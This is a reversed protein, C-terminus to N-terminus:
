QPLINDMDREAYASNIYVERLGNEANKSGYSLAKEFSVKAEDLEGVKLSAWGENNLVFSKIKTDNTESLKEWASSARIAQSNYLAERFYNNEILAHTLSNAATVALRPNETLTLEAVSSYIANKVYLNGSEKAKKYGEAPTIKLEKFVDKMLAVTFVKEPRKEESLPWLPYRDTAVYADRLAAYDKEDAIAAKQARIEAWYVENEIQKWFLKSKLMLSHSLDDDIAQISHNSGLLFNGAIVYPVTEDGPTRGISPPTELHQPDFTYSADTDFANSAYYSVDIDTPIEFNALECLFNYAEKLFGPLLTSYYDDPLNKRGGKPWEMAEWLPASFIDEHSSTGGDSTTRIFPPPLSSKASERADQPFCESNYIPLLQYASPFSFGYDNIAKSLWERDLQDLWSGFISKAEGTRALYFGNSFVKLAKPAGYHPVGIFNIRLNQFVPLSLGDACQENSNRYHKKLWYKAIMGGMSHAAIIVNRDELLSRNTCIWENFKEASVRNDERWDYPFVNIFKRDSLLVKSLNKLADGYVDTRTGLVNFSDLIKPTVAKKSPYQISGPDYKNQLTKEGWIMTQTEDEVLASGMIGPIVIVVPFKKRRQNEKRSFYDPAATKLYRDVNSFNESLMSNARDQAFSLNYDSPTLILLSSLLIVHKLVRM